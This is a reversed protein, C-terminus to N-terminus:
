ILRGTTIDDLVLYLDKAAADISFCADYCAKANAEILEVAKSDLTLWKNILSVVGDVSDEEVFGASYKLIENWINVKNSILVPTGTSLAESVVIGFNEQHSPLIFADAGYFAGWKQNGKLMGTWYFFNDLGLVSIRNMLKKQYGDSDPGAIVIIYKDADLKSKHISEIILELGKKPAVRSLFLIYKRGKLDPHASLFEEEVKYKNVTPLSSGYAVVREKPSYQSFSNRALLKEEESTFLVFSANNIVKREFVNWYIRKKLAKIKSIKNFWPDLMGHSFVVYPINKSTCALYAAYSHYQWIGHVIVADYDSVNQILWKYFEYNYRYKGVSGEFCFLPFQFDKVWMANKNDLSIVHVEHGADVLIKSSNTLGNIPGGNAPNVSSIVRLIKM